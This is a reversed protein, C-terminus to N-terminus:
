TAFNCYVVTSNLLKAETRKKKLFYVSKNLLLANFQDDTFVFLHQEKV